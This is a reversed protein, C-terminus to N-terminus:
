SASEPLDSTAPVEPVGKQVRWLHPQMTAVILLFIALIAGGGAVTLPAGVTAALAGTPLTGVPMLGWTMMYISMVRGALHQPVSTLILTNNVAMYSTSGAGVLLLAFMALWLSGSFAFFILALGFVIGAAFLLLGKRRFDGVQAITLSGLLAGAGTASMLMGLGGPGVDLVDAAFVPMLMQYPMAIIVPVFAIMMLAFVNPTDRVALLGEKLDGTITFSRKQVAKRGTPIMLLTAVVCIYSVVVLYYVGAIGIVALLAGALAPSLIRTLNMGVSNLAIANMLDKGDVLEAILAQRGPMNFSFVTGSLASAVLVHWFSINNTAILTAIVCAIVGVTSQTALLLNRKEVRDALVGGFLSFILMPLGSAASVLGLAVSSGTLQYVLWGQVVTQMQMSNFSGLMGIWLWRYNRNRLSSFAKLFDSKPPSYATRGKPTSSQM